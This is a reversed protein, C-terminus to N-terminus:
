SGKKQWVGLRLPRDLTYTFERDGKTVRDYRTRPHDVGAKSEISLFQGEELAEHIMNFRDELTELMIREAKEQVPDTSEAIIEEERVMEHEALFEDAPWEKEGDRRFGVETMAAPDFDLAVSHFRNGYRRIIM